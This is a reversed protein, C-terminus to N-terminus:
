RRRPNPTYALMKAVEAAQVAAANEAVAAAIQRELADLKRELADLSIKRRRRIEAIPTKTTNM